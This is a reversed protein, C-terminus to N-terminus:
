PSACIGWEERLEALREQRIAQRIDAMLCTMFYLNHVTALHHALIEKARFLHHLYARSFSRCTPCTCAPDVPAPDDRFRANRLNLRFKSSAGAERSLLSSNRAMRTPAVCDFTDVGREVVAFIDAVEGIGLLHRAKEDPLLPVTWELVRFMDQKSKGLSGGIAIGDFDLGAIVQASQERLDRYAGGQVIGFLAQATTPGAYAPATEQFRQRAREAWRHTRHMATATYARDHLPSTCEDLVLMIDAGLKRQVDIVSEPTFRHPSGDLHSRFTVGDDDLRVLSQDGSGGPRGRTEGPFISAIKGVGHEIAVGLSFVQFGGSDTLIPGDWAMFRHLGGLNAIIEAGPRLYLHYTNGFVAQIGVDRLDQPTLAKVTAQTGVAVFAPTEIVGHPTKLLGTRATQHRHTIEFM